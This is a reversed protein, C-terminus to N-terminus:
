DFWWADKRKLEDRKQKNAPNEMWPTNCIGLVKLKLQNFIAKPLVALGPNNNLGIHTLKKL